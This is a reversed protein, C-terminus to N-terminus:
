ADIKIPKTIDVGAFTADLLRAVQDSAAADITGGPHRVRNSALLGRRRLIEKRIAVGPQQEFVILPLYKTYIRRAGDVNGARFERVIAMLVEPFAFGTNFGDSGRELDFFGYLGGLGTLLSAADAGMGAKLAAFKPPSPVSEVKICVISKIEKVLRLQLDVGMHVQSIAPHDQLVIPAITKSAIRQFYDFVIKDNPVPQASPTIMVAAAGLRRAEESLEITATTGTHSTGVIVPTKGAAKVATKVLASREADSMRNSEGLLGLVTVGDVGVAVNFRIMKDLSELDLSEDDHFPTALIPVVGAFSPTRM